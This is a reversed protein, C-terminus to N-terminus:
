NREQRTTEIIECLMSRVEDKKVILAKLEENEKELDKIVGWVSKGCKICYDRAKGDNFVHECDPWVENNMKGGIKQGNM